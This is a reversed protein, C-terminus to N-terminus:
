SRPQSATCSTCGSRRSGAARAQVSTPGPSCGRLRAANSNTLGLPDDPASPITSYTQLPPAPTTHPHCHLAPLLGCTCAAPLTPRDGREEDGVRKKGARKV